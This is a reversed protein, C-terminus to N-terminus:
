KLYDVIKELHMGRSGKVVILSNEFNINEKLFEETNKFWKSNKNEKHSFYMYRGIYYVEKYDKNRIVKGIKKHIKKSYKGLELIDGLILVKNKKIVDLLDILGMISEYNSNYCDDIITNNNNEIINLRNKLPKYYKIVNIMEETKINFQKGITIALMCNEILHKGPMNLVFKYKKGNELIHFVTKYLNSQTDKACNTKIVTIKRLKVKRLYKDQGNVFLVGGDMGSIIEMKAKYIKRQSGLNGIHATGINTIVGFDPKVIKSLKSIEGRHNMGMEIVAVEYDNNLEMLTLPVGIHNNQNGKSKLVKCKTSLIQSILEKTMTKGCSGTVAIVKGKFKKRYLAGIKLLAEYNDKTYIVPVDTVVNIKEDIIIAAVKKEIADYVYNHGNDNKGKLAIFIDNEEAKRSDIM